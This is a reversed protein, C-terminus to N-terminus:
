SIIFLFCLGFMIIRTNEWRVSYAIDSVFIKKEANQERPLVKMSHRAEFDFDKADQFIYHIM